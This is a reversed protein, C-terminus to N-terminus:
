RKSDLWTKNHIFGSSVKKQRWCDISNTTAWTRNINFGSSLEIYLRLLTFLKKPPFLNSTIFLQGHCGPVRPSDSPTQLQMLECLYCHCLTYVSCQSLPKTLKHVEGLTMRSIRVYCYTKHLFIQYEKVYNEQASIIRILITSTTLHLTFTILSCLFYHLM